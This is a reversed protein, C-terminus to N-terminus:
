RRRTILFPGLHAEIPELLTGHEDAMVTLKDRTRVKRDGAGLTATPRTSELDSMPTCVRVPIDRALAPDAEVELGSLVDVVHRASDPPQEGTVLNSWGYRYEPDTSSLMARVPQPDFEPWRVTLAGLHIQTSAPEEVAWVMSSAELVMADYTLQEIPLGWQRLVDRVTTGAAGGPMTLPLQAFVARIPAFAPQDFGLRLASTESFLHAIMAAAERAGHRIRELEEAIQADHARDRYFGFRNTGFARGAVPMTTTHVQEAVDLAAATMATIAHTLAAAAADRRGLALACLVLYREALARRLPSSAAAAAIRFEQRAQELEALRDERGSSAVADQLCRVGIMLANEYRQELVRDLRQEIGALRNEIETLQMSLRDESAALAGLMEGALGALETNGALAGVLERAGYQGAVVAIATLPEVM